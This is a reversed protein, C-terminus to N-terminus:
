SYGIPLVASLVKQVRASPMLGGGSWSERRQVLALQEKMRHHAKVKQLLERSVIIQSSTIRISGLKGLSGKRQGIAM